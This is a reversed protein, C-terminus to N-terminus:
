IDWSSKQNGVYGGTHGCVHHGIEHALLLTRSGQSGLGGFWFPDYVILRKGNAITAMGNRLGTSRRVSLAYLKGGTLNGVLDGDHGPDEAGVEDLVVPKGFLQLSTSPHLVTINKGVILMERQAEAVRPLEQFNFVLADDTHGTVKCTADVRPAKGYLTVSKQDAAVPGSVQYSRAACRSSFIYAIGSYRDGEKRGDFLLTGKTVPLGSRPTSYYFKRTAGSAELSVISGNHDWLSAADAATGILLLALAFAAKM